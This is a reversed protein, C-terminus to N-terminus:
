WARSNRGILSGWTELAAASTVADLRRVTPASTNTSHSPSAWSSPRRM